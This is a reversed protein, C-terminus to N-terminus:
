EVRKCKCTWIEGYYVSTDPIIIESEFYYKKYKEDECSFYLKM